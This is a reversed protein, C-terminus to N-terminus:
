RRNRRVVFVVFLVALLLFFWIYNPLQDDDDQESDGNDDGEDGGGEDPGGGDDQDDAVKTCLTDIVVEDVYIVSGDPASVGIIDLAPCEDGAVRWDTIEHKWGNEADVIQTPGEPLAGVVVVEPVSTDTPYFTVQVHVQKEGPGAHEPMQFTINAGDDLRWVGRRGNYTSDWFTRDTLEPFVVNPPEETDPDEPPPDDFEWEESTKFWQEGEPAEMTRWEPPSSDDAFSVGILGYCLAVFFTMNRIITM